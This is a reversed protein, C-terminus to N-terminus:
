CSGGSDSLKLRPISHLETRPVLSYLLSRTVQSLFTYSLAWQRSYPGLLLTTRVYEGHRYLFQPADVPIMREMSGSDRDM